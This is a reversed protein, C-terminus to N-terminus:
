SVRLFADHINESFTFYLSQPVAELYMEDYDIEIAVM